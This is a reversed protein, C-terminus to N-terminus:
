AVYVKLYKKFSSIPVWYTKKVKTFGPRGAVPDAILIRDGSYGIVAVWHDITQNSPYGPPRPGGQRVLIGAAVAYKRNVDYVVDKHLGNKNTKVEYWRTKLHKNLAARMEWRDTGGNNDAMGRLKWQSPAGSGMRASLVMHATAPGCWYSKAQRVWHVKLVRGQEFTSTTTAQTTTVAEAAPPVIAPTATLLGAAVAAATLIGARRNVTEETSIDCSSTVV